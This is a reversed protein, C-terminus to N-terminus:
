TLPSQAFWAVPWCPVDHHSDPLPRPNGGWLLVRMWWHRCPLWTFKAAFAQWSSPSWSYCQIVIIIAINQQAVTAQSLWIMLSLTLTPLLDKFDGVQLAERSVIELRLQCRQWRLVLLNPWTSGGIPCIPVGHATSFSLQKFHDLWCEGFTCSMVHQRWAALGDPGKRFPM